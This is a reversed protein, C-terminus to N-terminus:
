ASPSRREDEEKKVAIAFTKKEKRNIKITNRLNNRKVPKFFSKKIPTLIIKLKNRINCQKNVHENEVKNFSLISSSCDTEYYESVKQYKVM